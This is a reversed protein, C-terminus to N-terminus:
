RGKTAYKKLNPYESAIKWGHYLAKTKDLLSIDKSLDKSETYKGGIKLLSGVEKASPVQFRSSGQRKAKRVFQDVRGVIPRSAKNKTLAKYEPRNTLEDVRKTTVAKASNNVNKPNMFKGGKHYDRMSGTDSVSMEKRYSKNYKMRKAM